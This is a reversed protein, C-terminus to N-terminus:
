APDIFTTAVITRCPEVMFLSFLTDHIRILATDAPWLPLRSDGHAGRGDTQMVLRAFREQPQRIHGCRPLPRLMWNHNPGFTLKARTPNASPGETPIFKYGFIIVEVIWPAAPEIPHLELAAGPPDCGFCSLGHGVMSAYGASRTQPVVM